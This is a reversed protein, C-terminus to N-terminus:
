GNSSNRMRPRIASTTPSTVALLRMLGLPALAQPESRAKEAAAMREQRMIEFEEAPLLPERLVQKLLGIAAPLNERKTHLSFRLNGRNGGFSPTLTTKLRDLEDKFQQDSLSKTGRLM